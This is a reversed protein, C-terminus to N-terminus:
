AEMMMDRRAQERTSLAERQESKLTGIYLRPPTEGRQRRTGTVAGEGVPDIARRPGVIPATEARVWRAMMLRPNYPGPTM